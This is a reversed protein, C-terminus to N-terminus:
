PNRFVPQVPAGLLRSSVDGAAIGAFAEDFAALAADVDDDTHRSCIFMSGNFLAGRQVLCQQVWSKVVLEDPGSFAVVARQPEGGVRVQGDVGHEAIRSRIGDLMRRGRREIDDLVAGDAIVDLVARAAALSLTEGGHTGSFFVDEFVRMVKWTGAVASIPMGNGLAKGYCSVDPTAGYRTRAGGPSLRFGTIIEDFVSV